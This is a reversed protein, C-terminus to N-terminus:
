RHKMISLWAKGQNPGTGKEKGGFLYKMHSDPSMEIEM